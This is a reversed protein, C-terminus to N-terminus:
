KSDNNIKPAASFYVARCNNPYGAITFNNSSNQLYPM